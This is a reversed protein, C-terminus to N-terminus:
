FPVDEDTIQGCAPSDDPGLAALIADVARDVGLAQRRALAFMKRMRTFIKDNPYGTSLMTDDVEEIVAGDEDKIQLVFDENESDTRSPRTFLHVTYNPFSAQYIGENVTREWNVKGEETRDVLKEVFARIKDPMKDM